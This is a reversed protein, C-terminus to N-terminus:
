FVALAQTLAPVSHVHQLTFILRSQLILYTHDAKMCPVYVILIHCQFDLTVSSFTFVFSLPLVSFKETHYFLALSSTPNPQM